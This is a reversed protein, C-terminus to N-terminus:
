KSEEIKNYKKTELYREDNIDSLPSNSNMLLLMLILLGNSLMTTFLSANLLYSLSPLFIILLDAKKYRYSIANIFHLLIFFIIGILIVGLIGWAAVGDTLFFNANANQKGYSVAMGLPMNYPYGGTFANVINIHSYHTYPNDVFFRLYYQSLWGAVCVTRLLLIAGIVFVITNDQYIYILVSAIILFYIIFSHMKNSIDEEKVRVLFYLAIMLFPMFFTLKQMDAMFLIFYCFLICISHIYKKQKLFCVLLFPYFAGFLWGKIYSFIELGEINESNKARLEYLLDSQTFINVFHLTSYRGLIFIGTLLITIIEITKLSISPLLVLNKFICWNPGTKFYIIFFVFMVIAYCCTTFTELGSMVFLSHMFPIYVFLYLFFVFFSSIEEIGKYALFPVVSLSIWIVYQLPKMGIYDTDMYAFYHYVFHNFMFDYVLCYILGCLLKGLISHSDFLINSINKM